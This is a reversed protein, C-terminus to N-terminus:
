YGTGKLVVRMTAWLIRLDTTLSLNDDYNRDFDARKAFESENRVSVQWSGTIGPLLAYYSLGNYLVRQSPMMPRPGVLSMDGILVNWLQPLEDMSTKRLLRGIRTIRPDAKLKQTSNWELRANANKNLYQELLRDANPVMTRLKVMLFTRGGRGVRQSFYFPASGDRAVILALITIFPVVILSTILVAAVDLCRKLYNRYLGSRPPIKVLGVPASATGIEDSLDDMQLTM